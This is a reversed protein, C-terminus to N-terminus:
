LTINFVPRAGLLPWCHRIGGRWGDGVIELRHENEDDEFVLGNGLLPFPPPPWKGM